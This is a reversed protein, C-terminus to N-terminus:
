CISHTRFAGGQKSHKRLEHRGGTRHSFPALGALQLAYLDLRSLSNSAARERVEAMGAPRFTRPSPLSPRPRLHSIPLEPCSCRLSRPSQLWSRALLQLFLKYASLPMAVLSAENTTPWRKNIEYALTSTGSCRCYWAEPDETEFRLWLSRQRSRYLLKCRLELSGLARANVESTSVKAKGGAPSAYAALLVFASSAPTQVRSCPGNITPTLGRAGFSRSELLELCHLLSCATGSVILQSICRVHVSQSVSRVHSSPGSLWSFPSPAPSRHLCFSARANRGSAQSAPAANRAM